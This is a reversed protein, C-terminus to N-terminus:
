VKLYHITSTNNNNNHIIKVCQRYMQTCSATRLETQWLAVTIALASICQPVVDSWNRRYCWIHESLTINARSVTLKSHFQALSSTDYRAPNISDTLPTLKRFSNPILHDWWIHLSSTFRVVLCGRREAVTWAHHKKRNPWMTRIGSSVSVLFIKVSSYSVV